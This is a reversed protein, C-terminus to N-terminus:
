DCNTHSKYMYTKRRRKFPSHFVMRYTRFAIPPILSPFSFPPSLLPFSLLPSSLPPFPLPSFFSISRSLKSKNSIMSVQEQTSLFELQLFSFSLLFILCLCYYLKYMIFIIFAISFFPWGPTYTEDKLIDCHM